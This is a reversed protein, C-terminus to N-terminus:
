SPAWTPLRVTIRLMVARDKSGKAQRLVVVKRPFDVDQARHRLVENLRM